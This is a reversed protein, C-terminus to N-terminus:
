RNGRRGTRKAAQNVQKTRAEITKEAKIKTKEAPKEEAKDAETAKSPSQAKAKPKTSSLDDVFSIKALQAGDGRRMETRKIRLYGSPRKELKPSIEDVLKHAAELTSLDAILQRRLHLGAKAKKAKTILKETYKATAKAKPLTTELSENLILENALGKILATRQNKQRGFKRVKYGHRNM